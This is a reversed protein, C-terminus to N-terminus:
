FDKKAIFNLCRSSIEREKAVTETDACFFFIVGAVGADADIGRGLSTTPKHNVLHAPIVQVAIKVTVLCATKFPHKVFAEGAFIGIDIIDGSYGSGPMGTNYRSPGPWVHCPQTIIKNYLSGAFDIYQVSSLVTTATPLVEFAPCIDGRL